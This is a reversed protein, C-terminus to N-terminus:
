TNWRVISDTFSHRKMAGVLSANGGVRNMESMWWRAPQLTLHLTEGHFTNIEHAIKFLVVECHAAIKSLTRPVMETPIHEMVDACVGLYFTRGLDMDWICVQEFHGSMNPDLCNAAIDVGWADIGQDTWENVLWGLGCGIDLASSPLPPFLDSRESWLRHGHCVLRYEEHSWAMEYKSRERSELSM